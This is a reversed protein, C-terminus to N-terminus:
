TASSILQGTGRTGLEIEIGSAARRISELMSADLPLNDAIQVVQAGMACARELLGIATMPDRIPYGKVGIACPYTWSSIGIKM